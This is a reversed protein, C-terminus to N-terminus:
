TTPIVFHTADATPGYLTMTILVDGEDLKALVGNDLVCYVATGGALPVQVCTAPQQSITQTAATTPGIKAAADRRLRKAADAAYFDVTIGIDSVRQPNIGAACPVSGDITCTASDTGAQIYRINGITINRNGGSLEVVAQHTTNGYKTLVSYAVTVPGQTVGDFKTLVADINADGTTSGVPLATTDTFHPREGTFCGALLVSSLLFAVAGRRSV